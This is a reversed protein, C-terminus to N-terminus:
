KPSFPAPLIADRDRRRAARGFVTILGATHLRDVLGPVPLHAPAVGFIQRVGAAFRDRESWLFRGMRYAGLRPPIGTVSTM